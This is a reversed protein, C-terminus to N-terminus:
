SDNTSKFSRKHSVDTSVIGSVIISILPLNAARGRDLDARRQDYCWSPCDFKQFTMWTPPVELPLTLCLSSPVQLTEGRLVTTNGFGYSSDKNQESGKSGVLFSMERDGASPAVGM